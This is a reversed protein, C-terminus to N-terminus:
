KGNRSLGGFAGEAEGRRKKPSIPSCQIWEKDLAEHAKRLDLPMNGPDYLYALSSSPYNATAEFVKRGGEIILDKQDKTISPLPFTNWVLTNSFRRRMELRIRVFDQWSTFTSTEIVSFAFGDPDPAVYLTNSAIVDKDLFAVTFYNIKESFQAPIALYNCDPQKESVPLWAPDDKWQGNKRAEKVGELAKRM